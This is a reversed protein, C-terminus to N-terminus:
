LGVATKFALTGKDFSSASCTSLDFNYICTM